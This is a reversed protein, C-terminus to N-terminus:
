NEGYLITEDRRAAGTDTNPQYWAGVPVTSIFRTGGPTTARRAQYPVNAGSGTRTLTLTDIVADTNDLVQITGSQLSAFAVWDSNVPQARLRQQEM